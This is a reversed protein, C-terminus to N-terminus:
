ATAGNSAAAAYGRAAPSVVRGQAYSALCSWGCFHLDRGYVGQDGAVSLWDIGDSSSARCHRCLLGFRRM